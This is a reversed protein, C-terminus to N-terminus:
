ATRARMLEDLAARDVVEKELLLKALAELVDRRKALSERVRAHADALIRRIEDDISQATKESYERPGTFSAGPVNLFTQRPEEFTALGMQESMGYQTVMHRAMDTARQLDNQAGTSVDGFVLEEAVRGGLLVDIRDLLEAKRLLYRDQTPLQMTYGLAAIGRPIISIKSVRDV